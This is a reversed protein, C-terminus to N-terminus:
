QPETAPVVELENVVRDVGDVGRTILEALERQDETAVSGALTVEGEQADVEISGMLSFDRHLALAARVTTELRLNRAGRSADEAIESAERQVLSMDLPGDLVYILAVGCVVGFLFSFLIRTM